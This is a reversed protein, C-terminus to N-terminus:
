HVVHSTRTFDVVGVRGATLTTWVRMTKSPPLLCELFMAHVTRTSLSCRAALTGQGRRRMRLTELGFNVMPLAPRINQGDLFIIYAWFMLSFYKDLEVAQVPQLGDLLGLGRVLPHHTFEGM